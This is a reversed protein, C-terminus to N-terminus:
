GRTCREGEAVTLLRRLEEGRTRTNGSGNTTKRPLRREEQQRHERKRCFEATINM